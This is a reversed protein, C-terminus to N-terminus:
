LSIVSSSSQYVHHRVIKYAVFINKGIKGRRLLSLLGSNDVERVQVRKSHNESNGHHRLFSYYIASVCWRRSRRSWSPCCNIGLILTIFPHYDRVTGIEFLIEMDLNGQLVEKHFEVMNRWVLWFDEVCRKSWFM